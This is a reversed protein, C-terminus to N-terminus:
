QAETFGHWPMLKGHFAGRRRSRFTFGKIDQM